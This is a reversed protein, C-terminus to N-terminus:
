LQGSGDRLIRDAIALVIAFGSIERGFHVAGCLIRRLCRKASLGYPFPWGESLQMRLRRAVARVFQTTVLRHGDVLSWVAAIEADRCILESVREAVNISPLAAATQAAAADIPEGPRVSAGRVDVTFQYACGAFIRILKREAGFAARVRGLKSHRSKRRGDPRTLRTGHARPRGSSLAGQRPSRQCSTFARGGLKMPQRRRPGRAPRAVGHLPWGRVRVNTRVRPGHRM